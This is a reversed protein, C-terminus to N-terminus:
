PVSGDNGVIGSINAGGASDCVTQVSDPVDGENLLSVIGDINDEDGDM